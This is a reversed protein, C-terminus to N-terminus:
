TKPVLRFVEFVPRGTRDSIIRVSDRSYGAAQLAAEFRAPVDTFVANGATHTVFTGNPDSFLRKAEAADTDTMDANLFPGVPFALRLTGRGLLRLSDFMGWDLIYINRGGESALQTALPQVADTWLLTTGGRVFQTLHQNLVLVNFIGIWAIVAALGARSLWWRWRVAAPGLRGAVGAFAAVILMQAFPWMLVVHHTGGGTGRNLAMQLWVVTCFILAFLGARRLRGAFPLLLMAALLAWWGYGRWKGGTADSLRVSLREIAGAPVGPPDAPRDPALYGLLAHGDFSAELVRVKNAFDETSYRANRGFTALPHSANYRILPAAAVAFAAGAIIVNRRNISRFLERRLTVLTAVALGALLWIFLAKDWLGLGFAFFGAALFRERGTQYFRVLAVAGAALLLHQIAVPGWDFVATLLYSPDTALLVTGAIAAAIGLTRRMLLYSFGIAAAGILLVPIRISYVSPPWISFIVAYLWIKVAGIYSMLMTPIVHKFISIRHEIAVPAFLGAGFLAEDNQVGPYPILVLGAAIFWACLLIAAVRGPIRFPEAEATKTQLRRAAGTAINPM